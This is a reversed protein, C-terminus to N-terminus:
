KRRREPSGHTYGTVEFGEQKLIEIIREYDSNRSRLCTSLHVVDVGYKKFRDIRDKIVDLSNGTLSGDHCFGMLEIDTGRYQEFSDELSNLARFCGKGICTQVVSESTIIAIKVKKEM